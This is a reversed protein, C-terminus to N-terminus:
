KKAKILDRYRHFAEKPGGVWNKESDINLLSYGREAQGATQDEVLNYVLFANIDSNAYAKEAMQQIFDAQAREGGEASGRRRNVETVWIEKKFSRLKNMLQYRQKKKADILPSDWDSGMDSFWNWGLIDFEGGEALFREFFGTHIWQDNILRKAAPDSEKVAQSAAKLWTAVAQYKEEPYDIRDAGHHGPSRLAVSAVETALQWVPVQGKYQGVIDAVYKHTNKYLERDSFIDNPGFPIIFVLKLNHKKALDLAQQNAAANQPSYEIRVTNLGLEVALRFQEELFKENNERFPFPMITVGWHFGSRKLPAKAPKPSNQPKEAKPLPSQTKKPTPSPSAVSRPTPAFVIQEFAALPPAPPGPNAAPQRTFALVTGALLGSIAIGIILILDRIHAPLRRSLKLQRLLSM